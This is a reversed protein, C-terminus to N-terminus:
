FLTKNMIKQSKLLYKNYFTKDRIDKEQEVKDEDFTINQFHVQKTDSTTRNQANVIKKLKNIKNVLM